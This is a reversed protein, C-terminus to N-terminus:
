RLVRKFFAYIRERNADNTQRDFVHSVGPLVVLEHKAGVKRLASDLAIAQALPVVDDRDGHITLVPPDDPSVFFVPSAQAARADFAAAPGPLLMFGISSLNAKARFLSALDTPGSQNVVAQVLSSSDPWEAEPPHNPEELAALLSLQGGASHGTAGILTPDIAFRSANARLFRIACRVDDIQAPWPHAAVGQRDPDLLRYDLSVAVFGRVAAHERIESAYISRDGGIWAGGHIFVLAPFPGADAPRALDLALEVGKPHCYVIGPEFVVSAWAADSRAVFLAPSLACLFLRLCLRRIGGL